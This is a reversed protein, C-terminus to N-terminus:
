VVENQAEADPQAVLGYGLVLGAALPIPWYELLHDVFAHAALASWATVAIWARAPTSAMLAVALGTLFVLVLLLLGIAGLEVAVQLPLSHASSRDTDKIINILEYSGPGSGVIESTRFAGWAQVWLVQRTPDLARLVHEPWVVRRALGALLIAMAALSGLAVVAAPWRRRGPTVRLAYFSVLVLPISVALAAASRNALVTVVCVMVSTWGIVRSRPRLAHLGGLGILQVAVAANANAYGIPGKAPGSTMLVGLLFFASVLLLGVGVRGAEVRGLRTGIWGGLLVLLPVYVYPAVGRAPSGFWSASVLAYTIWASVVCAVAV